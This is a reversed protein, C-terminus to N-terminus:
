RRRVNLKREKKEIADQLPDITRSRNSEAVDSLYAARDDAAIREGRLQARELETVLARKAPPAPTYGGLKRAEAIAIPSVRLSNSSVNDATLMDVSVSTGYQYAPFAVISCDALNSIDRVTRRPFKMGNEDTGEDWSDGDSPIQFAFSCSDLDGRQISTALDRGLQTDPLDCEFWLGCDKHAQMDCKESLRLTKYKTRGIVSDESHNVTMRTDDQRHLASQFCGHALTERFGGLNASLTNYKAAFGRIVTKNGVNRLEIRSPITRLETSM